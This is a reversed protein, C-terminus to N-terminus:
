AGIPCSAAASAPVRWPSAVAYRPRAAAGITLSLASCMPYLNRSAKADLCASCSTRLSRRTTRNPWSPLRRRNMDCACAAVPTDALARRLRITPDRASRKSSRRLPHNRENGSRCTRRPTAESQPEASKKAVTRDVCCTSRRNASRPAGSCHRIVPVIGDLNYPMVVYDERPREKARRVM